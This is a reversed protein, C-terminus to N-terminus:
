PTDIVFYQPDNVIASYRFVLLPKGWNYTIAPLLYQSAHVDYKLRVPDESQIKSIDHRSTSNLMSYNSLFVPTTAWM